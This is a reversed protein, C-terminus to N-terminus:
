VFTYYFCGRDPDRKRMLVGTVSRLEAALDDARIGLSLGVSSGARLVDDSYLRGGSGSAAIRRLEAEFRKKEKRKSTGGAGGRSRDVNGLDDSQHVQFVSERMLEVVDEADERLVFERLCAKARAQSLRILAELQRTTIPVGDSGGGGGATPYRLEIFYDRLVQAASRTMKPHCYERAYAIYDRVLDAPLPQKQTEVVWPLREKMPIQDTNKEWHLERPGEGEAGGAAADTGDGRRRYLDMINNSIRQDQGKDARDKLIFVLDFRSLIPSSMNLNEAVSKEIDYSGHKPNAAAIISCRAPLTAVIGAKAVSVQQQEMAELLGDQHSKEMKDFEDICCVGQDALVLAGAEIGVEGGAEKSISVTLGTASASNGGVYVSRAVVQNTALLMQSKGMGPDGVILVHVNSRITTGDGTGGGTGTGGGGGPGGSGAPTGGLLGLLLGAKVLDHGIISPCLSRVLLDFPFAMRAPMPGYMHDAHAVQVIRSLQDSTFSFARAGAGGEGGGGGDVDDDDDGEGGGGGGGDDGAADGGGGVGARDGGDATTSVISNAALYLRYTSAEEGGGRGGRGGRGRSPATSAARVTGAVHVVDGAHCRDVLDHTVVVDIQRPTRGAEGSTEEQTEQLRLEQVDVYRATPRLLVFTRSRCGSGAAAAAPCRTPVEYRGGLFHHAFQEGCRGCAFDARVARLRKPRARTVHGRLTVFRHALNTRVDAMRVLPYVNTFRVRCCRPSPPSTSPASTGSGSWGGGDRRALTCLVLGVACGAAALALDPLHYLFSGYSHIRVYDQDPRSTGVEHRNLESDLAAQDLSIVSAPGGEPLSRPRILRRRRRRTTTTTTTTTTTATGDKGNRTRTGWYAPDAQVSLLPRLSAYTRPGVARGSGRGGGRGSGTGDWGGGGGDGKEGGGGGAACRVAALLFSHLRAAFRYTAPDLDPPGGMGGMGGGGGGGGGGPGAEGAVEAAHLDWLRALDGKQM